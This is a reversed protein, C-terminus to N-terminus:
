FYTLVKENPYLYRGECVWRGVIMEWSLHDWEFFDHNKVLWKCFSPTPIHDSWAVCGENQKEYEESYTSALIEIRENPHVVYIDYWKYRYELTLISFYPNNDCYVLPFNNPSFYM